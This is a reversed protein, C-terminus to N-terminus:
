PFKSLSENIYQNLIEINVQPLSTSNLEMLKLDLRIVVLLVLQVKVLASADSLQNKQM